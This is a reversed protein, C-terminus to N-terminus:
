SSKKPTARIRKRLNAIHNSIQRPISVERDLNSKKVLLRGGADIEFMDGPPDQELIKFFIQSNPNNAEDADTAEIQKVFTGASIPIFLVYKILPGTM